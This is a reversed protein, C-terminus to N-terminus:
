RKQGWYIKNWLREHVYYSVSLVVMFTLSIVTAESWSQGFLVLILSSCVFCWARWTLVKALTRSHTDSMLIQIRDQHTRRNHGALVMGM